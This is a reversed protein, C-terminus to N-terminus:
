FQNEIINWNEKRNNNTEQQIHKIAAFENTIEYFKENSKTQIELVYDTPSSAFDKLRHFNEANRKSDDRCNGFIGSFGSGNSRVIMISLGSLGIGAMVAAAVVPARGIFKM